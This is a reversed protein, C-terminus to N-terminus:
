LSVSSTTGGQMDPMVLEGYGVESHESQDIGMRESGEDVRIGGMVVSLVKLIVLTGVAALAYAIVYEPCLAV